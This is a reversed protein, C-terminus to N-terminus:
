QPSPQTPQQAVSQQTIPPQSVPPQSAPATPAPPQAVPQRMPAAVPSPASASQARHGCRGCFPGSLPAGCNTCFEAM